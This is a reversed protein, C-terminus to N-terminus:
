SLSVTQVSTSSSWQMTMRSPAWPLVATTQSLLPRSGSTQFLTKLTARGPPVFGLMNAEAFM